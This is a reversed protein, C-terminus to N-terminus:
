EQIQGLPRLTGNERMEGRRRRNSARVRLRTLRTPRERRERGESKTSELRVEEEKQPEVPASAPSPASAKACLECKEILDAGIEEVEHDRASAHLRERDARDLWVVYGTNKRTRNTFSLSTLLDGLKRENVRCREGHSELDSNVDATPATM